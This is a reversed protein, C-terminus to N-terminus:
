SSPHPVLPHHIPPIDCQLRPVNFEGKSFLMIQHELLTCTLVDVLVDVDVFTFLEELSYDFLPMPSFPM